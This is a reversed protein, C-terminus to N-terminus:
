RTTGRRRTSASTNRHPLEDKQQDLSQEKLVRDIENELYGWERLITRIKGYDADRERLITTRNNM